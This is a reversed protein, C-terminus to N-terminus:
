IYEKEPFNIHRLFAEQYRAENALEIHKIRNSLEEAIKRTNFSLLLRVAGAGAANGVQQIKALPFEGLLGMRLANAPNMYNGFGGALLIEDLEKHKLGAETLSIEIGAAIAAKALQVERIDKQELKVGETLIFSSTVETTKIRQKIKFSVIPSLEPANLLRGTSEIVGLRLLEAIADVLASGCLGMPKENGIVETHVDNDLLVRQIAGATAIMGCSINGGELAPGAPASAALLHEGAQLIIEGNTGIDVLLINTASQGLGQSIVAALADSGVFGGIFPPFYCIAQPSVLLGLEAALRYFPGKAAPQFPEAALSAVSLMLLIHIMPTNGVIVIERIHVPDAAAQQCCDQLLINLSTVLAQRLEHYEQDGQQAYALRTMVDAGFSLQGNERAASGLAEGSALNYLYAVMTTTGLDVALGLLPGRGTDVLIDARHKLSGNEDIFIAPELSVTQGQGQQLVVSSEGLLEVTLDQNLETQCALVLQSTGASQQTTIKAFCKGCRGKGGCPAALRVGALRAAELLTIGAPVQVRLDERQFFVTIKNEM